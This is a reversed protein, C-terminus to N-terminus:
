VCSPSAPCNHWCLLGLPASPQSSVCSQQGPVWTRAQPADLPSPPAPDCALGLNATAATAAATFHGHRHGHSLLPHCQAGLHPGQRRPM